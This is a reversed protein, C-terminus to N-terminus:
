QYVVVVAASDSVSLSERENGNIDIEKANIVMNARMSGYVDLFSDPDTRIEEIIEEPLIGFLTITVETNPQVRTNGPFAITGAPFGDADVLQVEIGTVIVELGTSTGTGKRPYNRVTVNLNNGDVTTDTITVTTGPNDAVQLVAGAEYGEFMGCASLFLGLSLVTLISIVRRVYM